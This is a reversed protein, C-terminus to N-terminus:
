EKGAAKQKDELAALRNELELIKRKLPMILAEGEIDMRKILEVIQIVKPTFATLILSNSNDVSRLSEVQSNMFFPNLSQLASRAEIYRLPIAVTILIGRNAYDGLSEFSVFRPPISLQRSSPRLAMVRHVASSGEGVQVYAHEKELLMREFYGQFEAAPISVKSTFYYTQDQVEPESYLLPIDLKESALRLLDGLYISHNEDLPLAILEADPSESANLAQTDVFLALGPACILIFVSYLFKEFVM